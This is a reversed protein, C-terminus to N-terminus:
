KMESPQHPGIRQPGIRQWYPYRPAFGFRRYVAIAPANNEDVQLFGTHAGQSQGWALLHAILLKAHGKGQEAPPTRVSFIGIHGDEIRAMGCCLLGNINRLGLFIQPGCWLQQREVDLAAMAAETGKLRHVEAIGEAVSREIVRIGPAPETAAIPERLPMSMFVTNIERRYGRAALMADLGPPSLAETLRFMPAQGHRAYWAECFDIKEPLPLTGPYIATVTNSRRTDGGSARLVWGDYIYQHVAPATNLTLEEFRRAVEPAIPAIPVIPVLPALSATVPDAAM